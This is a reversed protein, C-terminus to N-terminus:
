HRWEWVVIGYGYALHHAPELSNFIEDGWEMSPFHIAVGVRLLLAILFIAFLGLRVLSQPKPKLLLTHDKM